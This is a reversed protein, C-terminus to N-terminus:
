MEITRELEFHMGDPTSFDGGWKFGWRRFADVIGPHLTPTAGYQNTPVNIDFALGWAHQSIGRSPDWLMHRPVWCGSYQYIEDALGAEQIEVLAAHMQDIIARHCTVRGLIPMDVSVIHRAVWDGDIRITGDGVSQYNFPELSASTSRVHGPPAQEQVEPEELRTPEGGVAEVVRAMVASTDAEDAIAVLLTDPGTAGLREGVEVGVLVDALQPLGNAALAGVRLAETSRAGSLTASEGLVAGVRNAAASTFVVDGEGVREWVGVENATVDPTFRRFRSTDVALADVPELGDRTPVQVEFSSVVVAEEVGDIGSIVQMADAPVGDVRVDPRVPTVTPSLGADAVEDPSAQPAATAVGDSLPAPLPATGEPAAAAPDVEVPLAAVPEQAAAPASADPPLGGGGVEVAAVALAAVVALRHRM